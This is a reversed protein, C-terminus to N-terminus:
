ALHYQQRHIDIIYVNTCYDRNLFCVFMMMYIIVVEASDVDEQQLRMKLIKEKQQKLLNQRDKEQKKKILEYKMRLEELQMMQLRMQEGQLEELEKKKRDFEDM